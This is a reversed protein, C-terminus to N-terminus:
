IFSYEVSLMLIINGAAIEFVFEVFYTTGINIM